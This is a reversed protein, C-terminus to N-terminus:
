KDEWTDSEELVFRLVLYASGDDYEKTLLFGGTTVSMKEEKNWDPFTQYLHRVTHKMEEVTPAENSGAWHWNVFNMVERCYKFNFNDLIKSISKTTIM